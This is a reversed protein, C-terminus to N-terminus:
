SVGLDSGAVGGGEGGVPELGPLVLASLAYLLFSNNSITGVTPVIM